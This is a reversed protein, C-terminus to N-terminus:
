LTRRAILEVDTIKPELEMVLKRAIKSLTIEKREENKLNILYCRWENEMLSYPKLEHRVKIMDM